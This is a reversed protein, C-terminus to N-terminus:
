APEAERIIPLENVRHFSMEYNPIFILKRGSEGRHMPWM